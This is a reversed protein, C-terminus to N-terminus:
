DDEKNENELWSGDSAYTVHGGWNPDNWNIAM